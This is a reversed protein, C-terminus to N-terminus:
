FIFVDLVTDLCTQTKCQLIDGFNNCFNSNNLKKSNKIDLGHAHYSSIYRLLCEGYLAMTHLLPYGV